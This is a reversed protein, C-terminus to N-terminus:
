VQKRYHLRVGMRVRAQSLAFYGREILTRDPFTAKRLLWVAGNIRLIPLFKHRAFLTKFSKESFISVHGAAPNLYYWGETHVKDRYLDTSVLLYGSPRLLGSIMRLMEDPERLHELVEICTILEVKGAMADRAEEPDVFVQRLSVTKEPYPEFGYADFGARNLDQVLRGSGCGVDLIASRKSIAVAPLRSLIEIFGLMRKNRMEWGTDIEVFYQGNAYNPNTSLNTATLHGCHSCRCYHVNTQDFQKSFMRATEGGCIVCNPLTTSQGDASIETCSQPEVATHKYIMGIDRSGM